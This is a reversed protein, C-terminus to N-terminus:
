FFRALTRKHKLDERPWTTCHNVQPLPKVKQVDSDSRYGSTTLFQIIKKQIVTQSQLQFFLLSFMCKNAMASIFQKETVRLILLPIEQIRSELYYMIPFLVSQKRGKTCNCSLTAQFVTISYFFTRQFQNRSLILAIFQRCKSWGCVMLM